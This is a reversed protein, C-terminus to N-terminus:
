QIVILAKLKKIIYYQSLNITLLVYYHYISLLFWYASVRSRFNASTEYDCSLFMGQQYYKVVWSKM